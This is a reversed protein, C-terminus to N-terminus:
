TNCVEKRLYRIMTSSLLLDLLELSSEDGRSFPGSVKAGWFGDTSDRCSFPIIGLFNLEGNLDDVGVTNYLPTGSVMWRADASLAECM